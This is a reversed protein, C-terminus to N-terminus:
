DHEFKQSEMSELGGMEETWPIRWALIGSHTATWEGSSRGSGLILALDGANCASEKGESGGPFDRHPTSRELCIWKKGIMKDRVSNKRRHIM